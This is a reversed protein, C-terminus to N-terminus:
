DQNFTIAVKGVHQGTALYELAERVQLFPFVRDVHPRVQHREMMNLLAEFDSRSGVSLAHLKVMRRLAVTIDFEAHKSELYGVVSAIGGLRTAAISRLLNSGGVVDIVHDAGLGSTLRLVEAPWDSKLRNVSEFEGVTRLRHLKEDSGSTVIVRGGAALALQLALTSVGGTGQVVITQGPQLGGLGFLARWATVGAIALTAAETPSLYQPIKVAAHQPVCVYEALVCQATGRLRKAVSEPTPPGSIWDQAYCPCVRDGIHFQQVDSGVEVVEGAGDSVPILPLRLDPYDGRVVQLDCYNLSAAHMRIVLDNRGPKPEPRQAIGLSDLGFRSRIEAVKM